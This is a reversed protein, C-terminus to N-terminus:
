QMGLKKKIELSRPDNPNANAWNLVKQDSPSLTNNKIQPRLGYQDLYATQPSMKTQLMNNLAKKKEDIQAERDVSSVQFPAIIQEVEKDSLNGQGRAMERAAGIIQANITNLETRAGSYPISGTVSGIKKAKDFLNNVNSVVKNFKAIGALEKRTEDRDKEPVVYNVAQEVSMQGSKLAQMAAEKIKVPMVAKDAEMRLKGSAQLARAKTIPDMSKAAEQEIKLAAMNKLTAETAARADKANGLQAVYDSYLNHKKGLEAEQAKIDNEINMNLYKLAPNEGHTLGSGIGGLILGIATSVKQPTSMSGVFHNPDIHGAQYDSLTSDIKQQIGEIKNQYQQNSENIDKIVNGYIDSKARGLAGEAKAENALGREIQGLGDSSASPISSATSTAMLENTPSAEVSIGPEVGGGSELVPQSRMKEEEIKVKQEPTFEVGMKEAEDNTIGYASPSTFSTNAIGNTIKDWLNPEKSDDEVVGGAAMQPDSHKKKSMVQKVFETAGKIPDKSQMVHRPIVVEGPSLMAPVTDNAYSDGKVQAMGPVKGGSSMCVRKGTHSKPGGVMGGDSYAEIEGGYAKAAPMGLVAGTAGLLGGAIQANTNANQQAVGANLGQMGLQNQNQNAIAGLNQGYINQAGQNYAQLNNATQDTRQAAQNGMQAHLNQLAQIAALQQQANLTAAQGIAQQQIGAGQQAAQRAILGANAGAGRQSAMLGAQNAINQGTTQNLQALAPNPGQGLSQRRLQDALNRQQGFVYDLNKIGNNAMLQNVFNAQNGLGKQAFAYNADTNVKSVPSILAGPNAQFYNKTGLVGSLFGM